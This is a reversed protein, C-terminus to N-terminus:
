LVSSLLCILADAQFLGSQLFVQFESYNEQKLKSLAIIVILWLVLSVTQMECTVSLSASFALPGPCWEGSTLSLALSGSPLGQERVGPEAAQEPHRETLVSHPLWGAWIDWQGSCSQRNHQYLSASSAASNSAKRTLRACCVQAVIEDRRYWKVDTSAQM